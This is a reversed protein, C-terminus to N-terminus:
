RSAGQSPVKSEIEYARTLSANQLIRLFTIQMISYKKYVLLGIKSACGKGTNLNTKYSQAANTTIM